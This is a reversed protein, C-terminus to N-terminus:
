GGRHQSWSTKTEYQSCECGQHGGMRVHVVVIRAAVGDREEVLEVEKKLGWIRM